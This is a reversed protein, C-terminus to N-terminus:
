CKSCAVNISTDIRHQQAFNQSASEFHSDSLAFPHARHAPLSYSCAQGTLVTPCHATGFIAEGRWTRRRERTRKLVSLSAVEPSRYLLAMEGAWVLVTYQNMALQGLM